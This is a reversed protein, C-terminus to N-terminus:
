RTRAAFQKPRELPVSHMENTTWIGQLDPDGWTTRPSGHPRRRQGARWRLESGGVLVFCLASLAGLRLLSRNRM